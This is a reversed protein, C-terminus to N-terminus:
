NDWRPKPIYNWPHNEENETEEKERQKLMIKAQISAHTEMWWKAM